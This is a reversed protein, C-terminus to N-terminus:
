GVVPGGLLVSRLYTPAVLTCYHAGLFRASEFGTLPPSPSIPSILSKSPVQLITGGGSTQLTPFPSTWNPGILELTDPVTVLTSNTPKFPAATQEAPSLGAWVDNITRQNIASCPQDTSPNSSLGNAASGLGFNPPVVFRGSNTESGALWPGQNLSIGTRMKCRIQLPQTKGADIWTFYTATLFRNDAPSAGSKSSVFDNFTAFVSTTISINGGNAQLLPSAPSINAVDLQGEACFKFFQQPTINSSTVPAAGSIAPLMVLGLLGVLVVAVRRRRM